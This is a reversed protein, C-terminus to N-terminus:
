PGFLSLERRQADSLLLAQNRQAPYIEALDWSRLRLSTAVGVQVGRERAERLLAHADFLFVSAIVWPRTAGRSSAPASRPGTFVLYFDPPHSANLDLLGENKGYWKVNVTKGALAGDAFRGDFGRNAASRELAIGFITAAIYDGAHGIQAPRGLIAAIEADIANKSRILAALRELM